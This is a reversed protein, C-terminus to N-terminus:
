ENWRVEVERRGWRLAEEKSEMYIDIRNGRVHKYYGTHSSLEGSWSNGCDEAAYGGVGDITLKTGYPIVKPDVAVTRGAVPSTGTSTIDGYYYATAEMKVTRMGGRSVQEDILRSADREAELDMIEQETLGEYAGPAPEYPDTEIVEGQSMFMLLTVISVVFIVLLRYKM